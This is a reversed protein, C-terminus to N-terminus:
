SNRRNNNPVHWCTLWSSEWASTHALIGDSLPVSGLDAGAAATLLETEQRRGSTFEPWTRLLYKIGLHGKLIIYHKRASDATKGGM